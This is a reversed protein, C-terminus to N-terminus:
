GVDALGDEEMHYALFSKDEAQPWGLKRGAYMRPRITLRLIKAEQARVRALMTIRWPWNVCGNLATSYVHSLVSRCKTQMSVSKSRHICRDRWWRATGKCLTPDAGQSWTGDRHLRYGLVDFVDKVPLNWAFCSNQSLLPTPWVALCSRDRRLRMTLNDTGTLRETTPTWPSSPSFCSASLGPINLLSMTHLRFRKSSPVSCSM